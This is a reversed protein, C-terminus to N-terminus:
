DTMTKRKTEKKRDRQLCLPEDPDDWEPELEFCFHNVFSVFGELVAHKQKQKNWVGTKQAIAVVWSNSNVNIEIFSCISACRNVYGRRLVKRGKKKLCRALDRWCYLELHLTQLTMPNISFYCRTKVIFAAYRRSIFWKTPFNHLNYQLLLKIWGNDYMTTLIVLENAFCKYQNLFLVGISTKYM